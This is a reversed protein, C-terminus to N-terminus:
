GLLMRLDAAVAEPEDDLQAWTLHAIRYGAAALRRDRSRDDHFARRSRHGEWGDLEVILRQAPWLCDVRYRHGGVEMWANFSPRPLRHRDVFPM